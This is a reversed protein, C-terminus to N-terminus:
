RGWRWGFLRDFGHVALEQTSNSPPSCWRPVSPDSPGAMELGAVELGKVKSEKVKSEKVKSEKVKSLSRGLWRRKRSGNARASRKNVTPSHFAKM